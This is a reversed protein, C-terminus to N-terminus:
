MQCKEPVDRAFTHLWVYLILSRRSCTRERNLTVGLLLHGPTVPQTTWLGHPLLLCCDNWQDVTMRRWPWAQKGREERWLTMPLDENWINRHTENVGYWCARREIEESLEVAKPRQPIRQTVVSFLFWSVCKGSGFSQKRVMTWTLFYILGLPLLVCLEFAM